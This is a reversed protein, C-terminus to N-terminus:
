SRSSSAMAAMLAPGRGSASYQNPLSSAARSVTSRRVTLPPTVTFSVQQMHGM